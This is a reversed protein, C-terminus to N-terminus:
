EYFIELTSVGRVVDVTGDVYGDVVVKTGKKPERSLTSRAVIIRGSADPSLGEPASERDIDAIACHEASWTILADLSIPDSLPVNSSLVPTIKLQVSGGAKVRAGETLTYDDEGIHVGLGEPIRSGSRLEGSAASAQVVSAGASAPASCVLSLTSGSDSGLGVPETFTAAGRSRQRILRRSRADARSAYSM